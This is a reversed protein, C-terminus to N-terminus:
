NDRDIDGDLLEFKTQTTMAIKQLGPFAKNAGNELATINQMSAEM